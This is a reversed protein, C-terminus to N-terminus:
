SYDRRACYQLYIVFLNERVEIYFDFDNIPKSIPELM